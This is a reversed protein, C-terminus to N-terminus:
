GVAETQKLKHRPNIFYIEKQGFCTRITFLDQILIRNLYESEALKHAIKAIKEQFILM